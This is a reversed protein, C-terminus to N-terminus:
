VTNGNESTVIQRSKDKSGSATLLMNQLRCVNALQGINNQYHMEPKIGNQHNLYLNQFGIM